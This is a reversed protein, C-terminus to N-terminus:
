LGTMSADARCAGMIIRKTGNKRDGRSEAVPRCSYCVGLAAELILGRYADERARRVADKTSAQSSNRNM